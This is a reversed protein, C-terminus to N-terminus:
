TIQERCKPTAGRKRRCTNGRRAGCVFTLFFPHRRIEMKIPFIPAIKKKERRKSMPCRCTVSPFNASPYLAAAHDFARISFRSLLFNNRPSVPRLRDDIKANKKKLSYVIQFQNKPDATERQRESRSCSSLLTSLLYMTTIIMTTVIITTIVMTTIVM